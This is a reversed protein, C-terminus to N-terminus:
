QKADKTILRLYTIIKIRCVLYTAKNCKEILHARKLYPVVKYKVIM